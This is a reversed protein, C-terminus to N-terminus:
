HRLVNEIDVVVIQSHDQIGCSKLPQDLNKDLKKGNFLFHIKAYLVTDRLGMIESFKKLVDKLKADNQFKLEKVLGQGTNFAITLFEGSCNPMQIGAEDFKVFDMIANLNDLPNESAAEGMGEMVCKLIENDYSNYNNVNNVPMQQNNIM